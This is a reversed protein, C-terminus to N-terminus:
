RMDIKKYVPIMSIHFLLVLIVLFIGIRGKNLIQFSLLFYLAVLLNPLSILIVFFIKKMISKKM